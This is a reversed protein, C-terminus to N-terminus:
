KTLIIKERFLENGVYLLALYIGRPKDSLGEVTIANKGKQLVINTTTIIKGSLDVIDVKAKTDIGSVLQIQINDSAPNPFITLVKNGTKG